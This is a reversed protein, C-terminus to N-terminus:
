VRRRLSVIFIILQFHCSSTERLCVWFATLLAGAELISFIVFTQILKIFSNSFFFCPNWFWFFLVLSCCVGVCASFGNVLISEDQSADVSFSLCSLLTSMEGGRRRRRFPFKVGLSKNSENLCCNVSTDFLSLRSLLTSMKECAADSHYSSSSLSFIVLHPRM